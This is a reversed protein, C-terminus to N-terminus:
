DSQEGDSGSLIEGEDSGSLIEDDTLSEDTDEVIYMRKKPKARKKKPKAKKSIVRKKKTKRKRVRKVRSSSSSSSRSRALLKNVNTLITALKRKTVDSKSKRSVRAYVSTLKKKLDNNQKLIDDFKTLFSVMLSHIEFNSQFIDDLRVGKFLSKFQLDGPNEEIFKTVKENYVKKALIYKNKYKSKNKDSLKSWEVSCFKSFKAVDTVYTGDDKLRQFKKDAGLQKRKEDVFLIYGSRKPKLVEIDYPIIVNSPEIKGNAPMVHKKYCDLRKISYRADLKLMDQKVKRIRNQEKVKAITSGSRPATKLIPSDKKEVLVKKAVKKVNAKKVTKPM